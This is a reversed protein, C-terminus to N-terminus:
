PKNLSFLSFELNNPKFVRYRKLLFFTITYNHRNLASTIKENLLKKSM